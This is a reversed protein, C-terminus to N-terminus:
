PEWSSARQIVFMFRSKRLGQVTAKVASATWIAAPWTATACTAGPLCGLSIPGAFDNQIRRLRVSIRKQLHFDVGNERPGISLLEVHRAEPRAAVAPTDAVTGGDDARVGVAGFARISGIGSQLALCSLEHYRRVAAVIAQIEMSREAHGWVPPVELMLVARRKEPEAVCPPLPQALPQAPFPELFECGVALGLTKGDYLDNAANIRIFSAELGAPLVFSPFRIQGLIESDHIRCIELVGVAADLVQRLCADHRRDDAAPSPGVAVAQLIGSDGADLPM